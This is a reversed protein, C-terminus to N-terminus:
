KTQVPREGLQRTWTMGARSFEVKTPLIKLVKAGDVTDGEYVLKEGIMAAPKGDGSSIAVIVDEDAKGGSAKIDRITAEVEQRRQAEWQRLLLLGVEKRHEIQLREGDFSEMERIVGAAVSDMNSTSMIHSGIVYLVDDAIAKQPSVGITEESFFRDSTVQRSVRGVQGYAHMLDTLSLLKPWIYQDLSGAFQDLYENRRQDLSALMFQYSNEILQKQEAVYGEIDTLRSQQVQIRSEAGPGTGAPEGWATSGAALMVLGFLMIHRLLQGM